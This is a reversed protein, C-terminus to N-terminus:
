YTNNYMRYSSVIFRLLFSLCWVLSLKGGEKPMDEDEWYHQLLLKTATWANFMAWYITLKNQLTLKQLYLEIGLSLKEEEKRDIGGVDARRKDIRICPYISLSHTAQYKFITNANMSREASFIYLRAFIFCWGWVLCDTQLYFLVCCSRITRRECMFAGCYNELAAPQHYSRSTLHNLLCM